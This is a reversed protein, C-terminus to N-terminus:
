AAGRASAASGGGVGHTSPWTLTRQACVQSTRSSAGHPVPITHHFLKTSQREATTCYAVASYFINCAIKKYRVNLVYAYTIACIRGDVKHEEIGSVGAHTGFSHSINLITPQQRAHRTVVHYLLESTLNFYHETDRLLYSLPIQPLPGFLFFSFFLVGTFNPLLSKQYTECVRFPYYYRARYLRGDCFLDDLINVICSRPCCCGGSCGPAWLEEDPHSWKIKTDDFILRRRRHRNGNGVWYIICRRHYTDRHPISIGPSESRIASVHRLGINSADSDAEIMSKRYVM